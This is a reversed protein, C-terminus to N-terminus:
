FRFSLGVAATRDTETRVDKMPNSKILAREEPSTRNVEFLGLGLDVSPAIPVSGILGKRITRSGDRLVYPTAAVAVRPERSRVAHDSPLDFRFQRTTQPPLYSPGLTLDAGTRGGVEQAIAPQAFIASVLVASLAFRDMM